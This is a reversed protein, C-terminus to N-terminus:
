GVDLAFTKSVEARIQQGLRNIDHTFITADHNARSVAVYSFRSSLLDPHVGTDAHILVRCSAGPSRARQRPSPTRPWALPLRKRRRGLFRNRQARPRRRLARCGNGGSSSTTDPPPGARVGDGWGERIPPLITGTHDQGRVGYRNELTHLRLPLSQTANEDIFIRRPPAKWAGRADSFRRFFM